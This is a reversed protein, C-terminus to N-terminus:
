QKSKITLNGGYLKIARQSEGDDVVVRDAFYGSGGDILTFTIGRAQFFVTSGEIKINSLPIPKEYAHMDAMTFKPFDKVPEMTDVDVLYFSIHGKQKPPRVLTSRQCSRCSSLFLAM